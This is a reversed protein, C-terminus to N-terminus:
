HFVQIKLSLMMPVLPYPMLNPIWLKYTQTRGPNFMKLQKEKRSINKRSM